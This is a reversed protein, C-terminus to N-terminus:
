RAPERLQRYFVESIQWQGEGSKSVRIGLAEIGAETQAMLNLDLWGDGHWVVVPTGVWRQTVTSKFARTFIDYHEAYRAAFEPTFLDANLSDPEVLQFIEGGGARAVELVDDPVLVSGGPRADGYWYGGFLFGAVFGAITIIAYVAKRSIQIDM